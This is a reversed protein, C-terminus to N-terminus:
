IAQETDVHTPVGEEKVIEDIETMKEKIILYKSVLWVTMGVIVLNVSIGTIHDLYYLFM